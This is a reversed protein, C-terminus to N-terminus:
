LVQELGAWDIMRAAQLLEHDPNLIDSFLTVYM